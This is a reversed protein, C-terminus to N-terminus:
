VIELDVEKKGLDINVIKVTVKDGLQFTRGKKKGQLMHKEEIFDYWDDDLSELSVMGRVFCDQLEIFLGFDRVRTILGPHSEKLNKRLFEMQRFKIVDQEAAAADRERRSCHSALTRIESIRAFHDKSRKKERNSPLTKMGPEFRRDLERHVITDPYRRIPSTFHLYRPFNLAFHPHCDASYKAQRMSQLMAMQVTHQYEKGKVKDLVGRLKSRDFPPKLTIGFELCFDAFKALSNPDPNEHTRFMGPVEHEILYEAVARNAALMMDEILEHAWHHTVEAWGKVELKEDLLLKSEPMDLDLSGNAIRKARLATAFERMLKCAEFIEPTRCLEPKNDDLAEKVMDYTLFAASRIVSRDIYYEVMRMDASFIMRATKTLRLQGEKLSCMNNSLKPPLMPYVRGPLYVSTARDKAERDIATGERVYYSVDAIHVLLTWRGDAEKRLAVADDHDRADAPDITFTVPHEYYLRQDLESQPIDEPIAEAERLVDEPISTKIDYNALIAAIDADAQGAPGFVREVSGIPRVGSAKWGGDEEHELMKIAVKYGDEAGNRDGERVPIDNFIGPTDPIVHGIFGNSAKKSRSLYYFTGIVTPHARELIKVVRGVPKQGSTDNGRRGNPPRFQKRRLEVAVLDGTLAGGTADPPIFIDNGPPESILFGMGARKVEIRGVIAGKPATVPAADKKKKGKDKESDKHKEKEKAKPAPAPANASKKEFKKWYAKESWGDEQGEEESDGESDQEEEPEEEEVHIVSDPIPPFSEEETADEEIEIPAVSKKHDAKPKAPPVYPEWDNRTPGRDRAPTSSRDRGGKNTRPLGFKGKKLEAIEGSKVLEELLRRFAPYVEDSINLEHALSRKRMPLFRQSQMLGMLKEKLEKRDM